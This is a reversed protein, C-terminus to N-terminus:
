GADLKHDVPLFVVALNGIGGAVPLLRQFLQAQQVGVNDDAVNGHRAHGPCLQELLRRLFKGINNENHQGVMRIKLQRLVRQTVVGHIIQQFAVKVGGRQLCAKGM